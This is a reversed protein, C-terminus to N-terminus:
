NRGSEKMMAAHARALGEQADSYPIGLWLCATELDNFAISRVGRAAALHAYLIALQFNEGPLVAVKANRWIPWHERYLDCIEGIFEEGIANEFHANRVDVLLNPHPPVNPDSVHRLGHERVEEKKIEGSWIEFMRKHAIDVVYANSM